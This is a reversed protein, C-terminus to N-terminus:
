CQLLLLVFSVDDELNAIDNQLLIEENENNTDDKFYLNQLEQDLPLTNAAKREGTQPEYYMVNDLLQQKQQENQQQENQQQERLFSELTAENLFNTELSNIPAIFLCLALLFKSCVAFVRISAM